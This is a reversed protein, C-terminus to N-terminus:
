RVDIKWEDDVFILSYDLTKSSKDGFIVEIKVDARDKSTQNFEKAVIKDVGGKVEVEGQAELIMTRIKGAFMKGDPSEWEEKTMDFYSFAEEVKGEYIAKTAAIAVQEAGLTSCANFIVSIMSVLILHIAFKFKMM